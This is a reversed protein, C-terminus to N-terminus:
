YASGSLITDFEKNEKNQAVIWNFPQNLEIKAIDKDKTEIRKFITRLLITKNEPSFKKYLRSCDKVLKISDKVVDLNEMNQKNINSFRSELLLIEEEYQRYKQNIVDKPLSKEALSEVLNEQKRKLQALKRKIIKREDGSNQSIEKYADKMIAEFLNLMSKKMQIKELFNIVKAELDKTPIYVQNCKPRNRYRLCYYYAFRKSKAYEATLRAGCQNCFLIGRLIFDYKYKRPAEKARMRLIRQAQEFLIPSILPKHNGQATLGGWVILGKYFPNSLYNFLQSESIPTNNKSKLGRSYMDQSLAKLSFNNTAYLEFMAKMYPAKGSDLVVIKRETKNEKITKNKYGLPAMQPWDGQRAKETMGKRAEEGINDSQYQAIAAMITEVLKGDAKDSINENVSVLQVGAKQLRLKVMAHDTINRAFRDIRQVVFYDIKNEKIFELAKQFDPRDSTRASAGADMFEKEVKWGNAKCHDKMIRLQADLSFGEDAQEETSVRAYIIAKMAKYGFIAPTFTGGRGDKALLQCM